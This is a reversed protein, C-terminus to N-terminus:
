LFAISILDHNRLLLYGTQTKYLNPVPELMRDNELIARNSMKDILFM